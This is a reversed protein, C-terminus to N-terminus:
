TRRARPSPAAGGTTGPTSAESVGSTNEAKGTESAREQPPAPIDGQADKSTKKAGRWLQQGLSTPIRDLDSVDKFEEDELLLELAADSLGLEDTDILHNNDLNWEIDQSLPEKLRGGFDEGKELRRVHSSGLYKINAM